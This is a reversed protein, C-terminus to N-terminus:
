NKDSNFEHPPDRTHWSGQGGLVQLPPNLPRRRWNIAHYTDKRPEVGMKHAVSLFQFTDVASGCRGPISDGRGQFFRATVKHQIGSRLVHNTVATLRNSVPKQSVGGFGGISATTEQKLCNSCHNFTVRMTQSNTQPKQRPLLLTFARLIQAEHSRSLKGKRSQEGM